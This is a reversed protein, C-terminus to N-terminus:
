ALWKLDASQSIETFQDSLNKTLQYLVRPHNWVKAAMEAM